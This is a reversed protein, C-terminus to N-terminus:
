PHGVSTIAMDLFVGRAGAGRERVRHLDAGGRGAHGGGSSGVQTSVARQGGAAGLSRSGPRRRHAGGAQWAEADARRGAAGRGGGTHVV